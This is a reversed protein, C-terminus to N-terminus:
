LSPTECGDLLVQHMELDKAVCGDLYFVFYDNNDKVFQSISLLIKTIHPAILINHLIVFISKHYLKSSDIHSIPIANGQVSYTTAQSINTTSNTLHNSFWAMNATCFMNNNSGLSSTLNRNNVGSAQNHNIMPTHKPITNYHYLHPYTAVSTYQHYVKQPQHQPSFSHYWM